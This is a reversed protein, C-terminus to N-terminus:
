FKNKGLKTNEQASVEFILEVEFHTLRMEFDTSTSSIELAVALM